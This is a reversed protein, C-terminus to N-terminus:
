GHLTVGITALNKELILQILLFVLRTVSLCVSLCVYLSVISICSLCVSLSVICIGKNSLVEPEDHELM